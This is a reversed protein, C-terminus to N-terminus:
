AGAGDSGAIDPEVVGGRRLRAAPDQAYFDRLVEYLAPEHAELALPVDLFAETAVAFFEGPNTAGYPDLPPRDVGARLADYAETCVAIWRDLAGRGPLPPTGDIVDDLMDLKHALEHFVVNRGRGPNRADEQVQDWALLVPGRRTHAEGLVPFVGDTVTGPIPGAREGRSQMTTPYVVIASMERYEDVDLGVVLIAAQVAITVVIEEDLAFGNAAEWHKHRLLWDADAEVTAREDDDLVQWLAVNREVIPLWDDPLGHRHRFV